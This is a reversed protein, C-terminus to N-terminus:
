GKHTSNLEAIMAKIELAYKQVVRAFEEDRMEWPIYRAEEVQVLDLVSMRRYNTLFGRTIGVNATDKDCSQIMIAGDQTLIENASGMGETLVFWDQVRVWRFLYSSAVVALRLLNDDKEIPPAYCEVVHGRYGDPLVITRM